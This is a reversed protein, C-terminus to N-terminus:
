TTYQFLTFAATVQDWQLLSLHQRNGEAHSQLTAQNWQQSLIWGLQLFTGAAVGACTSVPHQLSALFLHRQGPM